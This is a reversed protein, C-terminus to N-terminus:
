FSYIGASFYLAVFSPQLYKYYRITKESILNTKKGKQKLKDFKQAIFPFTISDIVLFLLCVNCILYLYM